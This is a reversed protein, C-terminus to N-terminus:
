APPWDGSEVRRKFRQQRRRADALLLPMLRVALSPFLDLLRTMGGRWRPITILPRPRGLLEEVRIAVEAPLLMKGSFSPAAAPDDVKGAIMPSWIGDPCVASVHIRDLGSRRLDTLTGLTFAIAAHKSAAYGAYGAPAVLGALSIINIVHGSGARRMREVAALTGNITGMANVELMARYETDNQEHALGPLLIGANNVWVELSGARRETEAAAARCAAADRVDLAAAWASGGIEQAAKEAAAGDLDTLQVSLGRAALRRAIALGLGGAAGTVLAGSM